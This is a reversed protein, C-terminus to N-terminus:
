LRILGAKTPRFGCAAYFGELHPEYDVHLWTAGRERALETAREVLRIGLGERRLGPHVMTDLIFAHMGGDWAVNVYGVLRDGDYAGVHALSRSLVGALDYDTDWATGWAAESLARFSALDPHPGDRLEVTV